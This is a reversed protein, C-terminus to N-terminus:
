PKVNSPKLAVQEQRNFSVMYRGNNEFSLIVGGRGNMKSGKESTLGHATVFTGKKFRVDEAKVFEDGGGAVAFGQEPNYACILSETGSPLDVVCHQTLKEGTLSLPAANGPVNILYRQKMADYGVITGVKGNLEEKSTQSITVSAGDAIRHPQLDLKELLVLRLPLKEGSREEDPLLRRVFEEVYEVEEANCSHGLGDFVRRGAITCGQEELQSVAMQSGMAPIVQDASGHCCLLPTKKGMDTVTCHGLGFICGSMMVMGALKVPLQLGIWAAMHAGLSFGVLMVRHPMVGYKEGEEAILDVIEGVSYDILDPRKTVAGMVDQPGRIQVDMWATQPAGGNMTVPIVQATPLVFRIHPFSRSWKRRSTSGATLRIGWGTCLSSQPPTSEM